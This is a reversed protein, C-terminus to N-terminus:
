TVLQNTLKNLSTVVTYSSAFMKTDVDYYEVATCLNNCYVTLADDYKFLGGDPFVLYVDDSNMTSIALTGNDFLRYRDGIKLVSSNITEKVVLEENEVYAIKYSSSSDYDRNCQLVMKSDFSGIIKYPQVNNGSNYYDQTASEIKAGIPTWIKTDLQYVKGTSAVIIIYTANASYDPDSERGSGKIINDSDAFAMLIYEGDDSIEMLVPVMKFDIADDNNTDENGYLLVKIYNGYSDSKYLSYDYKDADDALSLTAADVDGGYNKSIMSSTAKVASDKAIVLSKAGSLDFHCDKFEFNNESKGQNMFFVAAGAGAAVVVVAVAIVLIKNM